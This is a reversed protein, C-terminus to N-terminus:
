TAKKAPKKDASAAGDLLAKEVADVGLGLQRARTFAALVGPRIADPVMQTASAAACVISDVTYRAMANADLVPVLGLAELSSRGAAAINAALKPDVPFVARALDQLQFSAPESQRADWRQGTRRSSGLRDALQVQTCSLAIRARALLEPMEM